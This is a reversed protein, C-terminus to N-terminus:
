FHVGLKIVYLGRYSSSTHLGKATYKLQYFSNNNDKEFYKVDIKNKLGIVKVDRIHVAWSYIPM